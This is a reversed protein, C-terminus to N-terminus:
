RHNVNKPCDLNKISKNRKGIGGFLNHHSFTYIFTLSTTYFNDKHSPSGRQKGSPFPLLPDIEDGRYSLDVALQGRGKFLENEDPYKGSVDDLYDTFLFRGCVELGVQIQDSVKYKVGIGAPINLQTLAYMKSDPYVSLGQGETGLPQLFIKQDNYSTYPNFHFIGVGAFLYPTIKKDELSFVDYQLCLNGDVIDSAFSLNRSKYKTFDADSGQVKGYHVGGRVSFSSIKYLVDAGFSFGAGKFTYGASQLDGGYNMLGPSLQISIQQATVTQGFLLFCIIGYRHLLIKLM